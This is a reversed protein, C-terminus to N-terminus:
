PPPQARIAPSSSSSFSSCSSSAATRQATTALAANGYTGTRPQPVLPWNAREVVPRLNRPVPIKTLTLWAALVREHADPLLDGRRPLFGGWEHDHSGQFIGMAWEADGVLWGFAFAVRTTLVLAIARYNDINMPSMECNAPLERLRPLSGRPVTNQTEREPVWNTPSEEGTPLQWCAARWPPRAAPAAPHELVELWEVNRATGAASTTTPPGSTIPPFSESQQWRSTRM